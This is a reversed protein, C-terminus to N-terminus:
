GTEQPGYVENNEIVNDTSTTAIYIGRETSNEVLNRSVNANQTNFLYLGMSRSHSIVNDHITLNNASGSSYVGYYTYSISNNTVMVNQVTGLYIGYFNSTTSFLTCNRIILYADTNTVQILHQAYSSGDIILDEIIYPDDYTGSGSSAVTALGANGNVSIPLDPFNPTVGNNIFTEQSKPNISSANILIVFFVGVLIFVLKRFLGKQNSQM